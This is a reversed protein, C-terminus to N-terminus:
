SRLEVNYHGANHTLAKTEQATGRNTPKGVQTDDLYTYGNNALAGVTGWFGGTAHLVTTKDAGVSNANDGFFSIAEEEITHESPIQNRTTQIGLVSM